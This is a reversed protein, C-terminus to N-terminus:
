YPVIRLLVFSVSDSVNRCEFPKELHCIPDHQRYQAKWDGIWRPFAFIPPQSVKILNIHVWILKPFITHTSSLSTGLHESSISAFHEKPKEHFHRWKRINRQHSAQEQLCCHCSQGTSYYTSCLSPSILDQFELTMRPCQTLSAFSRLTGLAPAASWSLISLCFSQLTQLFSFTSSHRGRVALKVHALAQHSLHWLSDWSRPSGM